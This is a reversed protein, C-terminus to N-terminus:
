IRSKLIRSLVLEVVGNRTIDLNLDFCRNFPAPNASKRASAFPGSHEAFDDPQV